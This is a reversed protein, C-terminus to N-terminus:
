NLAPRIIESAIGRVEQLGIPSGILALIDPVNIQNFVVDHHRWVEEQPVFCYLYLKLGEDRYCPVADPLGGLYRGRIVRMCINRTVPVEATNPNAPGPFIQSGQYGVGRSIVVQVGAPIEPSGERLIPIGPILVDLLSSQDGPQQMIFGPFAQNYPRTWSPDTMHPDLAVVALISGPEGTFQIISDL